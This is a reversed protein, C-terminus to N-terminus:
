NMVRKPHYGKKMTKNHSTSGDMDGNLRALVLILNVNLSKHGKSSAVEKGM